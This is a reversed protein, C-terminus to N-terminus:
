KRILIKKLGYLLLLSVFVFISINGLLITLLISSSILKSSVYVVTPGDAGGIIGISSAEEQVPLGLTILEMTLQLILAIALSFILHKKFSWSTIFDKM